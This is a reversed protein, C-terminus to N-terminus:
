NNKIKSLIWDQCKNAWPIPMETKALEAGHGIIKLTGKGFGVVDVTVTKIDSVLVRFNKGYPHQFNLYDNEIKLTGGAGFLGIKM